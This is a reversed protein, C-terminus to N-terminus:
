MVEYISYGRKISGKEVECMISCEDFTTNWKAVNSLGVCVVNWILCITTVTGFVYNACRLAAYDTVKSRKIKSSINRNKLFM